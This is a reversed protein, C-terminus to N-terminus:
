DSVCIIQRYLSPTTYVSTTMVPNSRIQSSHSFLLVHEEMRNLKSSLSQMTSPINQWVKCCWLLSLFKFKNRVTSFPSINTACAAINKVAPKSLWAVVVEKVSQSSAICGWKCVLNRLSTRSTMFFFWPLSGYSSILSMSYICMTTEPVTYSAIPCQKIECRNITM